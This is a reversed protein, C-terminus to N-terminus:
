RWRASSSRAPPATSRSGTARRSSPRRRGHLAHRRHPGEGRRGRRAQGLGPGGGRRPSVLGGRATLIGEAALMGHVDEPSTETRVLIVQEGREAAAAADDATFYVRGSRRVRRPASARPSCPTATAPSSPISCRTSTSPPSGSCRRPGRSGSAPDTTMEVAMRLAARGTRKGVRTQLMWLKGQEITFETDCMDRYHRELRAFIALLEAHIEPFKDKLASSPSPTASGPSSTRARPTSSSTATSARRAPPRTAPSASAPGRAARRPQRVGHGPRQRGHRPRPRHGRADRYAIARPGNWSGFVAEIAGRLQDDPDQPFAAGTHDRSSRSTPTSLACPAAVGPGRRRHRRGLAGQGRRAPHRLGRRPHRARDARVDVRLAPLLRLRLARRRDAQGPGRVSQDNLGLNLVTDMMGPMSFKAGSRVSVLLPDVPDGLRKGM